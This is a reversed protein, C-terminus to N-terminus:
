DASGEPLVTAVYSAFGHDLSGVAEKYEWLTGTRDCMNGFFREIDKVIVEDLGFRSLVSMRLYRGIFANIGCFERDGKEFDAFGNRVHEMLRAYRPEDLSINGFLLTYYQCAESVNKQTEYTGDAMKVANDAFVEGDFSMEIAKKRIIDAKEALEPRAYVESVADLLGAYLMNTPFNIDNTWTNASSWEVFNWSPLNELLGLSNEYKQLFNLIGSVSKEFDQKDRAPNRNKLYDCVELIYWMDWQPIFKNNQHPDSPYVMPLVGEPFEGRNEYLLYNELFAEEVLSNGLFYHEAKATFYSDCLWGARERSPCDMFIDVANHAFTDVAAKYVKDLAPNSFSRKRAGSMDREFTRIGVSEVTLQGKVVFLAVYRCTYPEFSEANVVRGSPIIYEFVTQMNILGFEFINDSVYESFAVIVDTDADATGSWRIFGANIRGMDVMMWQGEGVTVPLNGGKDTVKQELSKIYRYPFHEIENEEFYGWNEEASMDFSYANPKDVAKGACFTGSSMCSDYDICRSAAFPVKRPIYKIGIDVPVARAPHSFADAGEDWQEEFYRQVSFREVKRIRNANECCEFDRGTYKVVEGDFLLEATFFSEQFVSTLSKCHFGGAFVVIENDTSYGSFASLDYEDVRAYGYPARAPGAGVYKGNIYLKYWDAAAIRLIHNRGGDFTERFILHRNLKDKESKCDVWVPVAKKFM